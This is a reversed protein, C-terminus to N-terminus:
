RLEHARDDYRQWVMAAKYKKDLAATETSGNWLLCQDYPANWPIGEDQLTNGLRELTMTAWLHVRAHEFTGPGQDSHLPSFETDRGRLLAV